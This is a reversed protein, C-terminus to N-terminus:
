GKLLLATVLAAAQDSVSARKQCSGLGSCKLIAALQDFCQDFKAGGRVDEGVRALIALCQCCQDTVDALV